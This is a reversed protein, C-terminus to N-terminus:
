RSPCMPPSVQKTVLSFKNAKSIVETMRGVLPRKGGSVVFVWHRDILWHRQYARARYGTLDTLEEDPLIETEM